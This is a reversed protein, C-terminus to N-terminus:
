QKALTLHVITETIQQAASPSIFPPPPPLLQEDLDSLKRRAARTMFVPRETALQENTFTEALFVRVYDEGTPLKGFHTQLREGYRRDAVVVGVPAKQFAAEVFERMERHVTIIVVPKGLEQAIRQVELHAFATTAVFECRELAARMEAENKLGQAANLKLPVSFTDLGFDEELEACFAVAHDSTSDVCACRMGSGVCKTVLEGFHPLDIHRSWAEALVRALWQATAGLVRASVLKPEVLFIGSRGRIEVLGENQLRQYARAVTRHDVDLEDATARISDLRDGHKLRGLHIGSLIKHRIHNAILTAQDVRDHESTRPM